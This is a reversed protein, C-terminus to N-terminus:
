DDLWDLRRDGRGRRDDPYGGGQQQDYGQQGGYPDQQYGQPQGYPDPTYGAGDQGYGPQQQYGQDYGQQGYGPQAYGGGAGSSPGAYHTPEGYQEPQGYGPQQYGGQQYGQPQGYGGQDQSWGQQAGYGGGGSSQAGYGGGPQTGYGGGGSSQAGYGGGGSSQAGYGGGGSSQAGYGGGGSAQGGYGPQQGWQQQQPPQGYMQTQGGGYPDPRHMMTPADGMGPRAVMTPDAPRGYTGGAAAGGGYVGGQPRYGGAAGGAPGRPNPRGRVPEDEDEEDEDEEDDDANRRILLLVIAGIGLAVLLGGLIIMIWTMMDLGGEDSAPTTETIPAAEGSSTPSATPSAEPSVSPTALPKEMDIARLTISQGPGVTETLTGGTQVYPSKTAIVAIIGPAINKARGDFRYIGSSNTTATHSQGRGDQLTVVAGGIGQGTSIDKVEGQITGVTEPAEKKVTLDADGVPGNSGENIRIRVTRSSAGETGSGRITAQLQSSTAGPALKVTHSCGDTCQAVDPSTTNITISFTKEAPPPVETSTYQIKFSLTTNQGVDVSDRSLGVGVAVVESAAHAPTSIGVLTGIAVTLVVGIRALWSRRQTAM